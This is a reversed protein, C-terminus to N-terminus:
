AVVARPLRPSLDDPSTVVSLTDLQKEDSLHKADLFTQLPTKGFCYKGSHPRVENYERLWDDVDAQLEDLSRYLKKRFAVSYFEDQMTRHFRECIGNTQPSYAKTKSHDINEVALYLEYEHHERNGCYETGRDTLARLLPVGKEEYFPLVRDNLMDAAVLANKRDYLKAFGVKAYTDIFTQQYIRGISKITGVYYTDQAGLYGPHATEIEGHAEKEQKAKEMARVQQETLVMGKNQVLRAELAKLRRAFTQLDNRLWISRVGTPSVFQGRKTMENAVRVQGYAPCEIALEIVAKEIEPEVRNKPIPKRRSIEKLALEGGKEYLEKFRYFSDRSYGMVKCADSVSGLMESLNLLGVKNKIIKQDTNM